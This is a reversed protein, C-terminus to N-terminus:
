RNQGGQSVNPKRRGCTKDEDCYGLRDCKPVLHPALWAETKLIEDCMKKVLERIELQARVCLRLNALHILERLNLSAVLSSSAANPLVMRADEAKVGNAVLEQYMDAAQQMFNNFKECLEGNRAVSPPTVYDFLGKEKVYRQSKQSFSMHRHRVLQHTCARSVGSIAYTLQIHEITSYHGSSIVKEILKLMDEQSPAEDYICIPLSASYCTKCATYITKLINEPKSILDVRQEM